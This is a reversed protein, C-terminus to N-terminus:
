EEASVSQDSPNLSGFATDEPNAWRILVPLAAGIAIAAPVPLNLQDPNALYWSLTAGVGFRAATALPSHALWLLFKTV